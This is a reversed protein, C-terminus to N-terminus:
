TCSEGHPAAQRLTRCSDHRGGGTDEQTADRLGDWENGLLADLACPLLTGAVGRRAGMLTRTLYGAPGAGSTGGNPPDEAGGEEGGGEGVWGAICATRTPYPETVSHHVTM